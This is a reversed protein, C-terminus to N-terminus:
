FKLGGERASEAVAKVRGHYKYGNRDFVVTTIKNEAAKKALQAGVEAAKETKNGKKIKLSSVSAITKGADDDVLQAYIAQISKFVVLRPRLATGNIKTRIKRHRAKRNIDKKLPM